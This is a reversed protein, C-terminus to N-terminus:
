KWDHWTMLAYCAVFGGHSGDFFLVACMQMLFIAIWDCERVIRLTWLIFNHICILQYLMTSLVWATWTWWRNVGTSSVHSRHELQNCILIHIWHYMQICWNYMQFCKFVESYMQILSIQRLRVMLTLHVKCMGWSIYMRSFVWPYM